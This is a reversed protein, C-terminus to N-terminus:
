DLVLRHQKLKQYFPGAALVVPHNHPLDEEEKELTPAQFQTSKWVAHYWHPAWAGDSDRPGAPWALMREDFGVGISTCVTRLYAEPRQLFDASDIVLPADGQQQCVQDFLRWQQEIGIDALTAAERKALYSRVVYAPDRILFCHQVRGFWDFELEPLMHHTMHKQYSIRVGDPNDEACQQVVRRWDTEGAAIIEERMPHQLGTARLYYAYFPEDWVRTDARNEWARMMATSINRPGSWMALRVNQLQNESVVKVIGTRFNRPFVGYM